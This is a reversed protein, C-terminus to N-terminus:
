KITLNPLWTIIPPVFYALLIMLWDIIIFPIIGKYMEALTIEPPCLPKLLYVGPAFPPTLYAVQCMLCFLLAFWIEDIGAARLIPAFIPVTVFIISGISMVFGLLFVVFLLAWIVATISLGQTAIYEAIYRGGGAGLFVSTFFLAGTMLGGIMATTRFCGTLAVSFGKWTFKRYAISILVAGFAGMGAAETPTAVGIFITGLVAFILILVPIVGLLVNM